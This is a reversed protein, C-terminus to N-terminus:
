RCATSPEPNQDSRNLRSDIPNGRRATILHYRFDPQHEPVAASTNTQNKKGGHGKRNIYELSTRGQTKCPSM